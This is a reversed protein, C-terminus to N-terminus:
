RHRHSDYRLGYEGGLRIQAGAVLPARVGPQLLTGVREGPPIIQTGHASNLDCIFVQWGDLEVRAHIPSVVEPAGALRLPRARGDAVSTDLTPERGLVYDADLQCVSGDPLVLVGLPPRKGKQRVKTTKAMAIGCVPCYRDEPDTFHGNKCYVGEVLPPLIESIGLDKENPPEAGPPPPNHAPVAGDDTDVTLSLSFDQRPSVDPRDNRDNSGTGRRLIEVAPRPSRRSASLWDPSSASAAEDGSQWEPTAELEQRAQVATAVRKDRDRELMRGLVHRFEASMPLEDLSIPKETIAQALALLNDIHDFPSKGALCFYIVLGLSYLDAREDPPAGRDRILEPAMYMPTGIIRRMTTVLTLREAEKATGLDIIVPGRGPQIIINSPKLDIRIIQADALHALAGALTAGIVATDAPPLPGREEVVRALTPGDLLEMVLAPSGDPTEVVDFTRVIQPHRIKSCIEAERKIRAMAKPDHYMSARLVKVAVRQGTMRDEGAYVTGMGGQGLLERLEYRDALVRLPVPAFGGATPPPPASGTVSGAAPGESAPRMESPSPGVLSVELAARESEHQIVLGLQTRQVDTALCYVRANAEAVDAIMTMNLNSDRVVDRVIKLIGHRAFHDLLQSVNKLSLRLLPDFEAEDGKGLLQSASFPEGESQLVWDAVYYCGLRWRDEDIPVPFLRAEGHSAFYEQLIGELRAYFEVREGDAPDVLLYPLDNDWFVFNNFEQLLRRPVGRGKFRLYQTLKGLWESDRPVDRVLNSVLLNPADWSCPVYMRWGFVSEYVGNGRAADRVAHDHMDPGAVILFHAGSMTLVNKIGSLLEEVAAVGVDDATLKDVEDLIIVIRLPCPKGRPWPWVRRLWSRPRVPGIYGQGVLSVIRILDYEVDTESYALFAAETALSQSRKASMSVKPVVFDVAKAMAGAPGLDVGATRERAESQTEKFALSTRMYSILLAHRADPPLRDLAGCDSLAEFVRRVIAFLLRETSTSRAVSLWVPLVVEAPAQRAVIEDLVKLVLTSKGVGRFGTILFTGGHSHLVRSQLESKLTQNGLWPLVDAARLPEHVYRFSSKLPAALLPIVASGDAEMKLWRGPGAPTLYAVPESGPGRLPVDAALSGAAPQRPSIAEGEDLFERLEGGVLRFTSHGITVIDKESLVASSIRRGNVFTGNLSGLDVVEYTGIPSRRVEAHHRSVSPDPLVVGNDAARGMRLTKAPTMPHPGLPQQRVPQVLPAPSPQVPTPGAAPQKPPGAAPWGEVTTQMYTLESSEAGALDTAPTKTTGAVARQRRKAASPTVLLAITTDDASGDASACRAAWLPLQGALWEPSRDGILGALDASVADAWPDDVQANGYGHTALLVGLLTTTAVDVVAARFDEEARAGCLSTTQQGNLAPDGPVPLLPQGDPRIGVIDGDGVQALLLWKGRAIALLLTSRYAILANDGEDRLAEEESTFPEAAVDYCVADRWRGTIEPVLTRLVETEIQKAATFEDLRAALERAAKCAVSVALQSGRGSRFHRHDDHGDAVAAILVDPVIQQIVVADQNPQGAAAHAAGLQSATLALWAGQTDTVTVSPGPPAPGPSRIGIASLWGEVVDDGLEALLDAATPREGPDKALCRRVLDLVEAPVGDLDPLGQLVRYIVAALGDEGFPARGTVAFTLVEGLCFVDSSPGAHQGTLQEPAMFAASGMVMALDFGSAEAAHALGFDVVRPGDTALLVNTPKLDHHVLGAAHIVSLGEALGAALVRVAGASLPGQSDVAEALSPGAVFATALWPVLGDADADVVRATYRGDVKQAAAVERRFRARFNSDGALEPRMVKVAALRGDPSRGLYVSGTYGSGLRMTLQYPGIRQPDQPRLEEGV